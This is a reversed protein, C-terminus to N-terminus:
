WGETPPVPITIKAWLDKALEESLGLDNTCIDVFKTQNVADYAAALADFYRDDLLRSAKEAYKLAKCHRNIVLKAM